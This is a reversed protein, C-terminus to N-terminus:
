AQIISCQSIRATYSNQTEVTEDLHLTNLAQFVYKMTHEKKACKRRLYLEDWNSGIPRLSAYWLEHGSLIPPFYANM